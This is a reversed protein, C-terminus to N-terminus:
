KKDLFIPIGKEASESAAIAIHFAKSADEENVTILKDNIISDIFSEMELVYAEKYRIMFHPMKGEPKFTQLRTIGKDPSCLTIETRNLGGIILNGVSGFVESRVDYGYGAHMSAHFNALAGNKFKLNVTVNDAFRKIGKRNVVLNAESAFVSEVEDKMFFRALDFDHLLMDIFLGGGKGPDCAWPPPPFPDRSFANFFVPKGIYGERIMKEATANDPDFRRNFGIQFKVGSEKIMKALKLNDAINGALPKECFLPLKAQVVAAVPEFHCATPTVVCVADIDKRELLQHIDTYAACELEKSTKVALKEDMDCVAVLNAKISHKINYAHVYGLRGLGVVAMGLVKM